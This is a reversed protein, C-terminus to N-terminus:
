DSAILEVFGVNGAHRVIDSVQAQKQGAVPFPSTL